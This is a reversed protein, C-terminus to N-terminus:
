NVAEGGHHHAHHGKHGQHHVDVGNPVHFFVFAVVPEKGVYRQKGEGHEHEDHAVVKQLQKKAPFGYTQHRIQQNTKPEVLGGGDKGIHFGKQDVAHTVKAKNQTNAENRCIRAGQVVGFSKGFCRLKSLQSKRTCLPHQDGHHANTKKNPGHALRSLKGQMDPQGVGHFAGSGDRGQNM